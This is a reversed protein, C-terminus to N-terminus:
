WTFKLNVYMYMPFFNGEYFDPIWVPCSFSPTQCSISVHCDPLSEVEWPFSGVHGDSRDVEGTRRVQPSPDVPIGFVSGQFMESFFIVVKMFISVGLM